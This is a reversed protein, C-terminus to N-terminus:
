HRDDQHEPLPDPITQWDTAAIGFQLRAAEMAQETTEYWYDAYSAEDVSSRFYFLYAGHAGGFIMLRRPESIYSPVNALLRM